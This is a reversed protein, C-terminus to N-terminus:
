LDSLAELRTIHEGSYHTTMLMPGAGWGWDQKRRGVVGINSESCMPWTLCLCTEEKVPASEREYRNRSQLKCLGLVGRLKDLDILSNGKRHGLQLKVALM